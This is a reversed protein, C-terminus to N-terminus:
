KTYTMKYHTDPREDHEVCLKLYNACELADESDWISFWGSMTKGDWIKKLMVHFM